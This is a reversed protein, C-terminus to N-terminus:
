YLPTDKSRSMCDEFLGQINGGGQVEGEILEKPTWWFTHNIDEIFYFHRWCEPKEPRIISEEWTYFDSFTTKTTDIEIYAINKEPHLRITKAELGNPSCYEKQIKAITLMGPTETEWLAKGAHSLFLTFRWLTFEKNEINTLVYPLLKM